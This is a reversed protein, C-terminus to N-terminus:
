PQSTAIGDREKMRFKILKMKIGQILDVYFLFIFFYNAREALKALIKVLHHCTSFIGIM